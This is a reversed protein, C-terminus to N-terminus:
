VKGERGLGTAERGLDREQSVDTLNKLSFNYPLHATVEAWGCVKMGSRYLHERIWGFDVGDM